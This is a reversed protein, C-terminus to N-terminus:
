TLLDEVTFVGLSHLVEIRHKTLKLQKDTLEM